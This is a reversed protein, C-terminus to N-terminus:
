QTNGGYPHPTGAGVATHRYRNTDVARADNTMQEPTRPVSRNRGEWANTALTADVVVDLHGVVGSAILTRATAELTSDKVALLFARRGSNAGPFVVGIENAVNAANLTDTRAM